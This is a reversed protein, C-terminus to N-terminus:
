KGGGPAIACRYQKHRFIKVFQEGHAVPQQYEIAAANGALEFWRLEAGLRHARRHHSRPLLGMCRLAASQRSDAAADAERKASIASIANPAKAASSVAAPM